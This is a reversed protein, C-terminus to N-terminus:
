PLYEELLEAFARYRRRLAARWTLRHRGPRMRRLETTDRNEITTM